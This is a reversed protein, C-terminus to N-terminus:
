KQVCPETETGIGQSWSARGIEGSGTVGQGPQRLVGQVAAAGARAAAAGSRSGCAAPGGARQGPQQLGQVAAARARCPEQRM